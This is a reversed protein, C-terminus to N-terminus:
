IKYGAISDPFARTTYILDRTESISQKPNKINYSREKGREKGLRQPNM